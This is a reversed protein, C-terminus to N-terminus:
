TAELATAGVPVWDTSIPLPYIDQCASLMAQRDPADVSVIRADRRSLFRARNREQRDLGSLDLGRRAWSARTADPDRQTVLVVAATPLNDLNDMVGEDFHAFGFRYGDARFYDDGPYAPVLYRAEGWGNSFLNLFFRTGTHAVSLLVIM